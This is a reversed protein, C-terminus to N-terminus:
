NNFTLKTDRGDRAVIISPVKNDRLVKFWYMLSEGIFYDDALEIFCSIVGVFEQCIGGINWAKMGINEEYQMRTRTLHVVQKSAKQNIKKLEKGAKPRMAEWDSVYDSAVVDELRPKVYFFYYLARAHVGFSDLMSNCLMRVNLRDEGEKCEGSLIGLLNASHWLQHIEYAVHVDAFIALENRTLVKRM